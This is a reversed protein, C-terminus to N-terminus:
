GANADLDLNGGKIGEGYLVDVLRSLTISNRDATEVMREITQSDRNNIKLLQKIMVMLDEKSASELDSVDIDSKNINPEKSESLITQNDKDVPNNINEKLMEGKGALLWDSNIQPFSDVISTIWKSQIDSKNTIAKRILGNSAGIKQEFARVSIGLYEIFQEIRDIM